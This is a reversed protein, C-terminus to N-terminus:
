IHSLYKGKNSQHNDQERPFTNYCLVDFELFIEAIGGQADVTEACAGTGGVCQKYKVVFQYGSTPCAGGGLQHVREVIAGITDREEVGSGAHWKVATAVIREEVFVAVGRLAIGEAAFEFLHHADGTRFLRGVQEKFTPAVVVAEVWLICEGDVGM